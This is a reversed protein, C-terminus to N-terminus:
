ATAPAQVQEELNEVDAVKAKVLLEWQNFRVGVAEINTQILPNMHCVVCRSRYVEDIFQQFWETSAFFAPVFDAQASRVLAPLQNLDLYDIPNVSRKQHWANIEDDATRKALQDKQNRMAVKEWWDSGHKAKLVRAIFQRISNELQYLTQYVPVMAAMEDRTAKSLIPDDEARELRVKFVKKPKPASRKRNSSVAIPVAAATTAPLYPLLRRIEEIKGAPLKGGHKRLNVQNKAALLLIADGTPISLSSALNGALRYLQAHKVDLKKELMKRLEYNSAM